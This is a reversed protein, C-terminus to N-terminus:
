TRLDLIEEHTIAIFAQATPDPKIPEEDTRVEALHPPLPLPQEQELAPRHALLRPAPRGLSSRLGRLHKM